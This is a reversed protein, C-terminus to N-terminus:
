KLIAEIFKFAGNEGRYLLVPKSFRDDVCAHKYASNCPIHDQYKKSCSDEYSEASELNWEFDAYFKFPVPIQKIYNKFEIELVCYVLKALFTKTRIRQKTFCLDTLVKSTCIIHSIKM